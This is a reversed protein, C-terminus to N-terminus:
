QNLLSVSGYRKEVFRFLGEVEEGFPEKGHIM